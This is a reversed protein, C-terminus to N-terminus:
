RKNEESNVSFRVESREWRSKMNYEYGGKWFDIENYYEQKASDSLKWKNM